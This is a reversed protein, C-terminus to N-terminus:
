LSLTVSSPFHPCALTFPCVVSVPVSYLQLAINFMALLTNCVCFAYLFLWLIAPHFECLATSSDLDSQAALKKSEPEDPVVPFLFINMSYNANTCPSCLFVPVNQM